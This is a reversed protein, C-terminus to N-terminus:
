KLVEKLTPGHKPDELCEDPHPLKIAKSAHYEPDSVVSPYYRFSGREKKGFVYSKSTLVYLGTTIGSKEKIEDWTQGPNEAIWKRLDHANKLKENTNM